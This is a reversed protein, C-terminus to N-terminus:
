SYTPQNKPAPSPPPPPTDYTELVMDILNLSFFLAKQISKVIQKQQKKAVLYSGNKRSILGDFAVLKTAIIIYLNRKWYTTIENTSWYFFHMTVFWHFFRIKAQNKPMFLKKGSFLVLMVVRNSFFPWKNRFLALAIQQEKRTELMDKGKSTV